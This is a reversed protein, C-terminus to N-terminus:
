MKTKGSRDVCVIDEEDIPGVDNFTQGSMQDSAKLTAAIAAPPIDELEIVITESVGESGERNLDDDNLGAEYGKWGAEDKYDEGRLKMEEM